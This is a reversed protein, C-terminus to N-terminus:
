GCRLLRVGACAASVWCSCSSVTSSASRRFRISRRPTLSAIYKKSEDLIEQRARIRPLRVGTAPNSPIRKDRVALEMILSFVRHVYRVTAPALDIGSIWTQVDAHTVQSLPTAGWERCSTPRCFGKMGPATSPKLHSQAALWSECCQSGFRLGRRTWIRVSM